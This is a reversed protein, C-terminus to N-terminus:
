SLSCSKDAGGSSNDQRLEAVSAALTTIRLINPRRTTQTAQTTRPACLTLGCLMVVALGVFGGCHNMFSTM